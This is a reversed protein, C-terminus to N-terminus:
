SSQFDKGKIESNNRLWSKIIKLFVLDTIVLGYDSIKSSFGKLLENNETGATCCKASRLKETVTLQTKLLLLAKQSGAVVAATRPAVTHIYEGQELRSGATATFTLRICFSVAKGSLVM